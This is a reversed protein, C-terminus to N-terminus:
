QHGVIRQMVAKDRSNGAREHIVASGRRDRQVDGVAHVSRDDDIRALATRCRLFEHEHLALEIRLLQGIGRAHDVPVLEQTQRRVIHDEVAALGLVRMVGDEHSDALRQPNVDYVGTGVAERGEVDHPRDEIAHIEVSRERVRELTDLGDGHRNTSAGNELRSQDLCPRIRKDTVCERIRGFPRDSHELSVLPPDMFTASSICVPRLVILASEVIASATTSRAADWTEASGTMSRYPRATPTSDVRSTRFASLSWTGSSVRTSSIMADHGAVITMEWVSM